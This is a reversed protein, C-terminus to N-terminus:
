SGFLNKLNGLGLQFFGRVAREADAKSIGVPVFEGSWTVLSGGDAAKVSLTATYDTVPAPGKLTKYSYSMGAADYTILREVGEAGDATRVRRVKGGDELTSKAIAPHGKPVGNFDGVLEWVEEPSASLRTRTEGTVQVRDKGPEDGSEQALSFGLTLCLCVVLVLLWTKKMTDGKTSSSTSPCLYYPELLAIDRRQYTCESM